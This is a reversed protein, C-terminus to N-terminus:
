HRSMAFHLVHEPDCWTAYGITRGDALELRHEDALTRAM